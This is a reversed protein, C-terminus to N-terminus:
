HDWSMWVANPGIWGEQDRSRWEYSPRGNMRRCSEEVVEELSTGTIVEPKPTYGRAADFRRLNFERDADLGKSVYKTLYVAALRSEGLLGQGIPVNGLLKIHVFGRGWSDEIKARPIYRGVVFHVHLGHQKHWEPVWLYPFPRGMDSNLKRFFEGIDKRVQRQDECSEKYTLTGLRNLRNSVVYRRLRSGARRAAMELSREPDTAEGRIGRNARQNRRPAPRFSGGAESASRYLNLRWQGEIPRVLTNENEFQTTLELLPRGGEAAVKRGSPGGDRHGTDPGEM